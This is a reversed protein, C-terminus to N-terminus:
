EAHDTDQQTPSPAPGPRDSPELTPGNGHCAACLLVLTLTPITKWM